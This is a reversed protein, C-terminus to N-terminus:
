DLREDSGYDCTESTAEPHSLRRFKPIRALRRRPQRDAEWVLGDAKYVKTLAELIARSDVSVARGQRGTYGYDLVLSQINGDFIIGVFEGARNVVPSGSNGGVIDVTSVFNFPTEPDLKLYDTIHAPQGSEKAIEATVKQRALYAQEPSMEPRVAANVRATVDESSMLVNLELDLCRKEESRTRAYFGDLRYNHTADSLKQMADSGVHHNTIVLGDRSVFSGSGGNNFRVSSNRLHELWATSPSFQYQQQLREAPVANFLWM